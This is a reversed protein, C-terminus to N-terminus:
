RYVLPLKCIQASCVIIGECLKTQIRYYVDAIQIMCQYLTKYKNLYM